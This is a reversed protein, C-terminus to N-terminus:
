LPRPKGQISPLEGSQTSLKFFTWPHKSVVISYAPTGPGRSTGFMTRKYRWTSTFLQERNDSYFHQVLPTLASVRAARRSQRDLSHVARSHGQLYRGLADEKIVLKTSPKLSTSSYLEQTSKCTSAKKPRSSSTCCKSPPQQTGQSIRFSRKPSIDLDDIDEQLRSLIIREAIKNM